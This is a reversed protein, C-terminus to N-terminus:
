TFNLLANGYGVAIPEPSLKHAGEEWFYSQARSGQTIVGEVGGGVCM